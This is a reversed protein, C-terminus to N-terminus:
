LDEENAPLRSSEEATLSSQEVIMEWCDLGTVRQYAVMEMYERGKLAEKDCLKIYGLKPDVEQSKKAVLKEVNKEFDPLYFVTSNAFVSSSLLIIFILNIM